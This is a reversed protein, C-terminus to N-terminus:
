KFKGTQILLASKYTQQLLKMITVPGVGGPVPTYASAIDKCNELDIDGVNGKNYGADILVVGKKLWERKVFEANGVAAVVIDATRVIDKLNVTKSHCITVTADMNLLMMAIPKGLIQSRGIVVAYKGKVDINFRELLSVIAFPTAALHYQTNRLCMMGFNTSSCGDVDKIPKIADFCQGENIHKPVPHQLLIGNINKNDNLEEIKKLLQETTTNEPLEIKIFDIGVRTCANQKMKVYTVSSPDNGVLITALVPKQKMKLVNAKLEAELEAALLKGDIIEAM